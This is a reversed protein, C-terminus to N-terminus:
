IKELFDMPNEEFQNYNQPTVVACLATPFRKQFEALGAAKKKRGSKVEVAWLKRGKKLVFDVEHQGERWYFVDEGTRVLQAGVLAEFVHGKEENTLADQVNVFYLAPAMPIIKPSSVKSRITKESYKSLGKMLFAGEYLSLYHKVLDTNGKDQLQGLIKTYSVEQAPCSALIEFAQRFLAPSKVSSNALIDKEIVTGIISNKVYRSWESPENKFPYAGPYGGMQLFEEFSLGYGKKSESFNWHYAPILRFRGTLSDSLGKQIELSSSGLIVCSVPKKDRKAKDWLAKIIESWSEIKQIEDIFLIKSEAQALAWEEAVWAKTANFVQDASVYHARGKLNKEIYKLISTTKGVQRPGVIAQILNGPQKLGIELDNLFPLKVFDV